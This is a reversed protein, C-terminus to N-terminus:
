LPVVVELARPRVELELPTATALEGDVNARRPRKTWVRIRHGELRFVAEPSLGPIRLMALVQMLRFLPGDRLAYLDLTGDSISGTPKPELGGGHFRGNVVALHVFWGDHREGDCDIEVHFPRIRRYALYLVRLYNLVGFWRKATGQHLAAAAAGLGISTANLYPRGNVCGLDIARLRGGAVLRLQEDLRPPLGLNRALDNATGLPVVALPKKAQLLAPLAAAISGDGGAIVIRDVEPAKESILKHLAEIGDPEEFVVELGQGRLRGVLARALEGSRARPNGLLLVRRVVAAPRELPKEDTMGDMGFAVQGPRHM